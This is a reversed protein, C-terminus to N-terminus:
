VGDSAPRGKQLFGRIAPARTAIVAFIVLAEIVGALGSSVGSARQLAGAGTELGALFIAAPIVGLPHLQALLAVAIAM